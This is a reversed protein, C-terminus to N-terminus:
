NMLVFYFLCIPFCLILCKERNRNRTKLFLIVILVFIRRFFGVVVVVILRRRDHSRCSVARLRLLNEVNRNLIFFWLRLNDLRFENLISALTSQYRLVSNFDSLLMQNTLIWWCWRCWLLHWRDNDIILRLVVFQLHLFTIFRRDFAWTGFIGFLQVFEFNKAHKDRIFHSAKVILRQLFLKLSFNEFTNQLHAVLIRILM